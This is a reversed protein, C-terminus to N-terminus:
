APDPIRKPSSKYTLVVALALVANVFLMLAGVQKDTIPVNFAQAVGFAANIAAVILAKTANTM